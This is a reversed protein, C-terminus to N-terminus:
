QKKLAKIEALLAEYWEKMNAYGREYNFPPWIKGTLVDYEEMEEMIEKSNDEIFKVDSKKLIM